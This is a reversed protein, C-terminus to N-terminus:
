GKFICTPYQERREEFDELGAGTGGETVRHSFDRTTERDEDGTM